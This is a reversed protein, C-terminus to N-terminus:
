ISITTNSLGIKTSFEICDYDIGGVSISVIDGNNDRIVGKYTYSENLNTLTFIIYEDKAVTVTFEQVINGFDLQM